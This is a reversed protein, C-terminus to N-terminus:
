FVSVLEIRAGKRNHSVRLTATQGKKLLRPLAFPYFLPTWHKTRTAKDDGPPNSYPTEDDLMLRLWQVVGQCMGDQTVELAVQTDEAPFEDDDQFNFTFLDTPESLWRMAYNPSEMNMILPAFANFSTFDFGEITTVRTLSELEDSSVLASVMAGSSPIMIGGPKLLRRKADELSPIVEESLFQASFIEAILVDAQRPIDVGVVAEWSPKAIVTVNGNMKNHEILGRATQALVANAECTYVQAGTRGAMMALLGAGTGIELVTHHPKIQREIAARFAKNRVTDNMMNFHWAPVAETRVIRTAYHADPDTPTLALAREMCMWANELDGMARFHRGAGSWLNADNGDAEIGRKYYAIALDDRRLVSAATAAALLVRPDYPHTALLSEATALSGAWNEAQGQATALDIKVTLPDAPSKSLATELAEVAEASAGADLLVRGRLYWYDGMHPALEIAADAYNLADEFDGRTAAIISLLKMAETNDPEAELVDFYCAEAAELQGAQQLALGKELIELTTLQM